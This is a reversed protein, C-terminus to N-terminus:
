SDHFSNPIFPLLLNIRVKHVTICLNLTFPIGKLKQYHRLILSRFLSSFMWGPIIQSNKLFNFGKNSPLILARLSIVHITCLHSKERDKCSNDNNKDQIQLTDLSNAVSTKVSQLIVKAEDFRADMRRSPEIGM